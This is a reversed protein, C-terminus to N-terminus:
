FGLWINDCVRARGLPKLGQDEGQLDRTRNGKHAIFGGKEEEHRAVSMYARQVWRDYKHAIFGGKEEEQRAVSM